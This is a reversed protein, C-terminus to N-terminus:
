WGTWIDDFAEILKDFAEGASFWMGRGTLGTSLRSGGIDGPVTAVVKTAWGLRLASMRRAM